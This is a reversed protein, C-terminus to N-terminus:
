DQWMLNVNRPERRLSNDHMTMCLTSPLQIGSTKGKGVITQMPDSVSSDRNMQDKRSLHLRWGAAMKPHNNRVRRYYLRYVRMSPALLNQIKSAWYFHM